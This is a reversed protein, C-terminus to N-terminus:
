DDGLLRRRREFDYPKSSQESYNRVEFSSKSEAIVEASETKENSFDVEQKVIVHEMM